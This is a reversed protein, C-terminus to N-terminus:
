YLLLKIAIDIHIENWILDCMGDVGTAIKKLSARKIPDNEAKREARKVYHYLKKFGKKMAHKFAFRLWWPKTALLLGIAGLVYEIKGMVNDLFDEM